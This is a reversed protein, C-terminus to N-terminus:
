IRRSLAVLAITSGTAFFAAGAVPEPVGKAGIVTLTTPSARAKAEDGDLIGNGNTDPNFPDTGNAAECLNSCGDHDPDGNPDVGGAQNVTTSNFYRIEWVDPLGNGNGDVGNRDYPKSLKNLPNSGAHIEVGDGYADGDTDVKRPDTGIAREFTDSLGDQDSDLGKDAKQDTPDLPNSGSAIEDSDGVGDGDSDLWRVKLDHVASPTAAGYDLLVLANATQVFVELKLTHGKYLIAGQAHLDFTVPQADLATIFQQDDQAVLHQTGDPAVDQLRVQFVTLGQANARFYLVAQTADAIEVDKEWAITTVWADSSPQDVLGLARVGPAVFTTSGGPGAQESLQKAGGTAATATLFFDHDAVQFKNGPLMSNAAQVPSAALALLFVLAVGAWVTRM